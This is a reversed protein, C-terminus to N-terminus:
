PQSAPPAPTDNNLQSPAPGGQNSDPGSHGQHMNNMDHNMSQPESPPQGDIGEPAYAAFAAVLALDTTM